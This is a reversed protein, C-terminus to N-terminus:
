KGVPKGGWRRWLDVAHAGPNEKIRSEKIAGLTDALVRRALQADQRFALRWWAGSSALEKKGHGKQWRDMAAGVDLLFVNEPSAKRPETEAKQANLETSRKLLSELDGGEGDQLELHRFDTEPTV